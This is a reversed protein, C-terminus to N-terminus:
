HSISLEYVELWSGRAVAMMRGNPSLAVAFNDYSDYLPETKAPKWKL